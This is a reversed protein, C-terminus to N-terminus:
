HGMAKKLESDIWLRSFVTTRSMNGLGEEGNFGVVWPQTAHFMPGRPGYIVWNQEIGYRDVEKVLRQLEEVTTAAVAAEYMADYVPDQANPPTWGAKSYYQGIPGLPKWDAQCEVPMMGPMKHERVVAGYAARDNKGMVKVEVGIGIARLYEMVIQYYALDFGYHEYVTSFRIGDAGRPYGAEDLLAEAGEPDYSYYGKLEEPWEEFPFHYGVLGTGNRGTPTTDARGKYYTENITEIDIAMQIAHRMRVDDFPPKQVNFTFSTEGRYSFPEVNIEPNTKQLSTAADVSQLQTSGAMGIYDLQGSRLAALYTAEEPMILTKVTDIYPLRNEPYKEDFGWYDPNKTWTYSSGEVWGTLEYPGTGVIKMRDTADGYQRVVEPAVIWVAEAVLMQKLAGLRIAKHKFVVTNRDTATVSEVGLDSLLADNSPDAGSFEGLVLLRDFTFKIDDATLERGSMPPKDHWHVGKRIHFIVTLPDPTEWSTALAGVIFQQPVYITRFHFVERDLAWNAIGLKDYVLGVIAGAIYRVYPDVSEPEFKRAYTLTGGYQPASVM